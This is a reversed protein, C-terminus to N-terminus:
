ASKEKLYKQIARDLYAVAVDERRFRRNARPGIRYAKIIGEDSWKRITGTHVNFIHAVESTTLMTSITGERKNEERDTM